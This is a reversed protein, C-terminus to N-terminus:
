VLFSLDPSFLLVFIFLFSWNYLNNASASFWFVFWSDCNREFHTDSWTRGHRQAGKSFTNTAEAHFKQVWRFCLPLKHRPGSRWSHSGHKGTSQSSLVWFSLVPYESVKTACFFPAAPLPHLQLSKAFFSNWIKWVCCLIRIFVFSSFSQMAGRSWTVRLVQVQGVQGVQGKPAGLNLAHDAHCGTPPHEPSQWRWLHALNTSTDFNTKCQVFLYLFICFLAFSGKLLSELLKDQNQSVRLLYCSQFRM